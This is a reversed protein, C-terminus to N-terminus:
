IKTDMDVLQLVIKNQTMILPWLETLEGGIFLVRVSESIQHWPSYSLYETYSM